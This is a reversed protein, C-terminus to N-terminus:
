GIYDVDFAVDARAVRREGPELAQDVGAPTLELALGGLDEPAATVADAIAEAATEALANVDDGGEGWWSVTVRDSLRRLPQGMALTKAAIRESRIAFAPLKNAPVPSARATADFAEPLAAVVRARVAERIAARNTADM